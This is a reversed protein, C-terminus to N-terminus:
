DLPTIPEPDPTADPDVRPLLDLHAKSLVDIIAAQKSVVDQLEQITARLQEVEAL